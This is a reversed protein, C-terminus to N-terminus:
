SILDKTSGSWSSSAGHKRLLRVLRVLAVQSIEQLTTASDIECDGTDRSDPDAWARFIPVILAIGEAVLAPTMEIENDAPRDRGSASVM